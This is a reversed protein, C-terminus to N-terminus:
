QNAAVKRRLGFSAIGLLGSGFLWAAAPVPVVAANSPEFAPMETHPLDLLAIEIGYQGRNMMMAHHWKRAWPEKRHETADRGHRNRHRHKARRRMERAHHGVDKRHKKGPSSLAFFRLYYTGPDAEFSFTGPAFISGLVSDPTAIKLGVKKLPKPSEFDTLTAQYTGATDIQLVETFRTRNKFREAKEFVLASASVTGTLLMLLSVVLTVPTTPPIM